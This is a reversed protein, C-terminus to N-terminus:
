GLQRSPKASIAIQHNAERYAVVTGTVTEGVAPYRVVYAQAPAPAGPVFDPADAFHVIELLACVSGLGVDLFVGFRAQATVTGTLASGIPYQTQAALWAQHNSTDNPGTM